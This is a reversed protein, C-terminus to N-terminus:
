ANSFVWVKYAELTLTDIATEKQGTIVIETAASTDIAATVHAGTAVGFQTTLGSAQSSIQSNEANRNIISLGGHQSVSTTYTLTQLATGATGAGSAGLRVRIIKDDAGNNTTSSHDVFIVGNAGLLGAPIVITALIAETTVAGVSVAAGSSALLTPVNGLTARAVTASADDVLTAGFSSVTVSAASIDLTRDADGTTLTLTRDAALNSGPAIILDHSANTDLLHLGTNPLTLTAIGTVNESDDVIIDSPQLNGTTGNARMLANDTTAATVLPQYFWDTFAVQGTGTTIRKWGNPATASPTHNELNWGIPYFGGPPLAGANRLLKQHSDFYSVSAPNANIVVLEIGMENPIYGIGQNSANFGMATPDIYAINSHWVHNDYATSPVIQCVNAFQNGIIHMGTINAGSNIAIPQNATDYTGDTNSNTNQRFFDLNFLNNSITCNFMDESAPPSAFTVGTLTCDFYSNGDIKTNRATKNFTLQTGSSVHSIINDLVSLNISGEGGMNIGISPRLIADTMVTTLSVGQSNPTGYNYLSVNAVAPLTRAIINGSVKINHDPSVADTADASETDRHNWPFIFAGSTADWLFPAISNTAASGTPPEAAWTIAQTAAIGGSELRVTDLVINNSINVAFGNQRGTLVEGTNGAIIGHTLQLRNNSIDIFRSGLAKISGACARAFNGQILVGENQGVTESVIDVDFVHCSIPDDGTLEFRNNLYYTKTGGESHLGGRGVNKVQNGSFTVKDCNWTFAPLNGIDEFSCDAITVSPYYELWITRDGVQGAGTFMTGRFTIGRIEMHVKNVASDTNKILWHDLSGSTEEDFLLITRGIGEGIFSVGTTPDLPASDGDFFYTGAPIRVIRHGASISATIASQFAVSDDTVGDAVAGFDLVSSNIGLTTRAEAATEDDLLTAFFPSILTSSDIINITFDDTVDGLRVPETTSLPTPLNFIRRSNMDLNAEMTNPTTGDRSLTNELAAEVAEFNENITLVATTQNVLNVLDDTVLKAM